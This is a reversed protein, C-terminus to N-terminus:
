DESVLASAWPSLDEAGLWERVVEANHEGKRPAPRHIGAEANSFRYPSQVVPRTGGARDDVEFVMGQTEQGYARGINSLHCWGRDRRDGAARFEVRHNKAVAPTVLRAEPVYRRLEADELWTCYAFYYM